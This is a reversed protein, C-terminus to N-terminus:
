AWHLIGRLKGLAFNAGGSLCIIGVIAPVALSLVQTVTTKMDNFGATILTMIEESLM